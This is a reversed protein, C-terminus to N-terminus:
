PGDRWSPDDLIGRAETLGTRAKSIAIQAQDSFQVVKAERNLVDLEGEFALIRLRLHALYAERSTM